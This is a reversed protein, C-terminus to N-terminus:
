TEVVPRYDSGLYGYTSAIANQCTMEQPPRRERPLGSHPGIQLPRLEPDCRFTYIKRHGDPEPTSNTVEIAVFPEDGDQDIRMLRRSLGLPDVDAHIVTAGVDRM